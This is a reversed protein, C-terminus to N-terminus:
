LTADDAADGATDDATELGGGRRRRWWWRWRGRRNADAALNFRGLLHLVHPGDIRRNRLRGAHLSDDDDLGGDSRRALHLVSLIQPRNRQEVGRCQIGHLMPLERRGQQVAHRHRDDHGDRHIERQLLVNEYDFSSRGTLRTSPPNVTSKM